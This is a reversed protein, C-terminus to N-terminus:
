EVESVLITWDRRAHHRELLDETLAEAVRAERPAGLTLVIQTLAVEEVRLSGGKRLYVRKGFRSRCCALPVYLDHDFEETKDGLRRPPRPALVGVVTFAQGAVRITQGLPETGRFLDSALAAGLVAVARSPDHMEEEALFRGAEVELSQAAAYDPTTAVLRAPGSLELRRAEVPFIRLPVAAAIGPLNGLRRLDDDTLGYRHVRARGGQEDPPEVSTVTLHVPRLGAQGKGSAGGRGNRGERRILARLANLSQLVPENEQLGEKIEIWQDNSEGTAIAREDVGDTGKVYCVPRGRVRSVATLPIALVNKQQLVTITVDGSMGPKLSADVAPLAITTPYLKVDGSLFDQQSPVTAVSRVQGRLLRDPFADIRVTALQGARVRSVLAEHIRAKLQMQSLDAIQLLKQGERVAEGVAVVAQAGVGFRVQEPVHYIVVGDHPARLTCRGIEEHLGSLREAERELIAKKGEWSAAAEDEKGKAQLKILALANRAQRLRIERKRKEGADGAPARDLDIQAIEVDGEATELDLRNRTETLKRLHEAAAAASRAASVRIEQAKIDDAISASDLQLVVDGKKVLTGEDVVSKITAVVPSAPARARLRCVVDTANAPEVTGREAITLTLDKRRAPRFLADAGPLKALLAQREAPGAQQFAAVPDGGAPEAARLGLLAPWPPGLVAILWAAVLLLRKCPPRPFQLMASSRRIRAIERFWKRVWAYSFGRREVVL